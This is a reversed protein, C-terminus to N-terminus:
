EGDAGHQGDVDAHGDDPGAVRGCLSDLHGRGDGTGQDVVADADDGTQGLTHVRSGVLRGDLRSAPGDPEDCCADSLRIRCLVAGQVVQHRLM